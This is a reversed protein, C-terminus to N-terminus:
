MMCYERVTRRPRQTSLDAWSSKGFIPRTGRSMPIKWLWDGCAKRVSTSSIRRWKEKRRELASMISCRLTICDMSDAARPSVLTSYTGIPTAIMALRQSFMSRCTVMTSDGSKSTSVDSMWFSLVGMWCSTMRARISSLREGLYWWTMRAVPTIAFTQGMAIVSRSGTSIRVFASCIIPATQAVCGVVGVSLSMMSRRYRHQLVVSSRSTRLDQMITIALAEASTALELLRSRFGKMSDSTM